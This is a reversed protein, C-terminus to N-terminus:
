AIAGIIKRCEYLNKLKEIFPKWLVLSSELKLIKLCQHCEEDAAADNSKTSRSWINFL